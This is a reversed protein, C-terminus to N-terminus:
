ETAEDAPTDQATEEDLIVRFEIRRNAERGEETGNDAIPNSEGYGRATLNTTLVRRDLLALVVAEARQQSLRANMEERGQSDTHGGIEMRVGECALVIEAIRDLVDSADQSITASGPEFTIKRESLADNVKQACEEATPAALAPNLSEDYRIAIRFNEAEGLKDALLQAVIGSAEPQGTVGTLEVVDPQVVLSGNSVHSLAELGALVRM